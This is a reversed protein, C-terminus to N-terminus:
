YVKYYRTMRTRFISIVTRTAAICLSLLALVALIRLFVKM